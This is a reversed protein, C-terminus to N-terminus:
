IRYKFELTDSFSPTKEYWGLLTNETKSLVRDWHKKMLNMKTVMKVVRNSIKRNITKKKV